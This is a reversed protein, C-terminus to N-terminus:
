IGEMKYILIGPYAEDNDFVVYESNIALIQPLRNGIFTGNGTHKDLVYTRLEVEENMFDENEFLSEHRSIQVIIHDKLSIISSFRDYTIDSEDWRFSMGRGSERHQMPLYNDFEAIWEIDGNLNYLYLYPLIHMSSAIQKAGNDICTFIGESLIQMAIPDRARYPSGFSTVNEDMDIDYHHYLKLNGFSEENFDLYKLVMAEEAVCLGIPFGALENIFDSIDIRDNSLRLDAKKVTGNGDALYIIGESYGAGLPSVLEDPGYGFNGFENIFLGDVSFISINVADFDFIYVEDDQILVQDIRSFIEEKRADLRGITSVLETSSDLQHVLHQSSETLIRNVSTDFIVSDVFDRDLYNDDTPHYIYSDNQICSVFVILALVVITYKCM